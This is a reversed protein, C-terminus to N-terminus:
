LHGVTREFRHSELLALNRRSMNLGWEPKSELGEYNHDVFLADPRQWATAPILYLQPLSGDEFLGIAALLNDRLAFNAKLFFVYNMGRISKVKVDYYRSEAGGEDEMHEKRIVFDIGKDAVEPPYINFGQLAFEMEVLYKAYRNLERPSLRSWKYREM